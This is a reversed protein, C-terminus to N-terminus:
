EGDFFAGYSSNETESYMAFSLPESAESIAALAEKDLLLAATSAADALAGNSAFAYSRKWVGIASGPKPDIVHTGQFLEGSSALANGELLIVTRTSSGYGIDLEWGLEGEAPKMAVFTSGASELLGFPIDWEYFHSVLRDLAFGKGIGGLDLLPGERLKRIANNDPDMALVPEDSPLTEKNLNLFRSIERAQKKSDLAELGMFPHFKGNLRGSADFAQLLCDVTEDGVLITEGTKARNIRTTDSNELYFSLREELKALLEEAEFVASDMLSSREGLLHFGFAGAMAECSYSQINDNDAHRM